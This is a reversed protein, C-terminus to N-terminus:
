VSELAVNKQFISDRKRLLYAQDPGEIQPAISLIRDNKGGIIELLSEKFQQEADFKVKPAAQVMQYNGFTSFM